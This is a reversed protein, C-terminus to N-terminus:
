ASPAGKLAARIEDQRDYGTNQELEALCARLEKEMATARLCLELPLVHTMAGKDFPYSKAWSDGEDRLIDFAVPKGAITHVILAPYEPSPEVERYVSPAGPNSPAHNQFDNRLEFANIGGPYHLAIQKHLEGLEMNACTIEELTEVNTYLWDRM